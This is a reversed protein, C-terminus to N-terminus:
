CNPIWRAYKRFIMTCDAHGMQSALYIPAVKEVSLKQSAYTHRTQYPERRKVGARALAPYWHSVRLKKDDSWPLQTDSDRFIEASVGYKMQSTLIQVAEDCLDVLRIGSASKPGKLSGRVKAKNISILKENPLYDNWTLAILESTRLGTKLAFHFYNRAQSGLEPLIKEIEKTTFPEPLRTQIKPLKLNLLPNSNVRGDQILEQYMARLPSLTNRISKGSLDVTSVWDYIMERSLNSIPVAGFTPILHKDIRRQYDIRTSKELRKESQHMWRNLATSINDSSPASRINPLLEGLNLTGLAIDSQIRCLLSFAQREGKATLPLRL